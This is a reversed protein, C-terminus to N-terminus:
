WQFFFVEYAENWHNKFIEVLYVDIIYSLQGRTAFELTMVLSLSGAGRLVPQGSLFGGPSECQVDMLHGEWM